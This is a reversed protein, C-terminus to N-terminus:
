QCVWENRRGNAWMWGAAEANAVPDFIDQDAYPTTAWTSPLFQFLGSANSSANVASPDLNSECRAVRLMDERSQGYQDAAAYIIAIIEDETYGDSGDVPPAAPEEPTETAPPETAPIETPVPEETAPEETVPAETPVPEEEEPAPAASEEGGTQLWDAAAWGTTGNYSVPLFGNQGDGRLDVMAGDPIVALVPYATGPGTRLNLGGDFVTASGTVTDGVPVNGPEGSEEPVEPETTPPVPEEVPTEEAVPPAEPAGADAGGLVFEAAAWGTRDTYTLSVFGNASDGTLAVLAGDPIVSIVVDSTSPGMRFNVPGDVVNTEGRQGGPTVPGEGFEVGSLYYGYAFGSQGGYVVPYFGNEPDGTIEVTAGPLMVNVIEANLAPGARLNLEDTTETVTGADASAALPVFALWGAVMTIVTMITLITSFRWRRQPSTHPTPSQFGSGDTGSGDTGSQSINM